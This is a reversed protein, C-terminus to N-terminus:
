PKGKAPATTPKGTPHSPTPLNTPKGTPHSPTPLNTPKGTPHAPTPGATATACFATVRDAGGAALVALYRLLMPQCDRWILAFAARDGDAARSRVREFEPGLM